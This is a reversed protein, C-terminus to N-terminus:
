EASYPEIWFNSSTLPLKNTTKSCPIPIAVTFSLINAPEPSPSGTNIFVLFTRGSSNSIKVLVKPVYHPSETILVSDPATYPTSVTALFIQLTYPYFTSIKDSKLTFLNKISL